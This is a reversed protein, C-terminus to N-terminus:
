EPEADDAIARALEDKTMSSRGNIDLEQARQYLEDRTMSSLEADDANVEDTEDAVADLDQIGIRVDEDAASGTVMIDVESAAAGLSALLMTARSAKAWGRHRQEQDLVVVVVEEFQARLGDDAMQAALLALLEWNALDKAEALMVAELMSLEATEIDTSGSLM